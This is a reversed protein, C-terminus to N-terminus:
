SFEWLIFLNTCYFLLANTPSIHFPIYFRQVYKEDIDVHRSSRCATQLIASIQSSLVIRVRRWPSLKLQSPSPPYNFGPSVPISQPEIRCCAGEPYTSSRSVRWKMRLSGIDGVGKWFIENRFAELERHIVFRDIVERDRGVNWTAAAVLVVCRRRGNLRETSNQFPM